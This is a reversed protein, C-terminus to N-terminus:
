VAYGGGCLRVDPAARCGPAAGGGPALRGTTMATVAARLTTPSNSARRSIAMLPSQRQRLLHLVPRQHGQPLFQDLDAGLDDAVTAIDRELKGLDCDRSAQEGVDQAQNVAQPRGRQRWSPPRDRLM